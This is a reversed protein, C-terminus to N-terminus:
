ISKFFRNIHANLCKFTKDQKTNKLYIYINVFTIYYEFRVKILSIKNKLM